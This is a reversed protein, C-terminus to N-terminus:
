NIPNQVGGFDPYMRAASRRRWFWFRRSFFWFFIFSSFVGFVLLEPYKQFWDSIRPNKLVLEASIVLFIFINLLATIFWWIIWGTNNAISRITFNKQLIYYYLLASFLSFMAPLSATWVLLWVNRSKNWWSASCSSFGVCFVILILTLLFSNRKM